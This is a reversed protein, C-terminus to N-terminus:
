TAETAAHRGPEWGVATMSTAGWQLPDPELTSAMTDNWRNLFGFMAIVGMIEVIQEDSWHAHLRDFHGDTVQNPVLAGDRALALAAREGEDFLPSTEFEWAAHIKEVELGLRHASHSTHAQCYRCGHATSAIYAILQKLARDVSGEGMIEGTLKVWAAAMRPRHAMTMLSTPVVGLQARQVEMPEALLPDANAPDVPAVRTM